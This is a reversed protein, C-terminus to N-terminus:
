KLGELKALRDAVIAAYAILESEVVDGGVEFRVGGAYEPLGPGVPTAVVGRPTTLSVLGAPDCPFLVVFRATDFRRTAPRVGKLQLLRGRLGTAAPPVPDMGGSRGVRLVGLTMVVVATGPFGTEVIGLGNPQEVICPGAAEEWLTRGWVVPLQQVSVAPLVSALRQTHVRSVSVLDTGEGLAIRV